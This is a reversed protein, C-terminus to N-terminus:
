TDKGYDVGILDLCEGVGLKEICARWHKPHTHKMRQFRNEEEKEMHVGFMCFMCGTKTYGLDYISSYPVKFQHLYSWIDEETWFALPTSMPRKSDFSNCGNILYQQQRLRSDTAMTGVVPRLGSKKEFRKVPDKKLRNCCLSSIKIPQNSLFKWKEAIKGNGKSDGFLRKNRLFESKTTRIEYLKCATEKSVLPYGYKEIVQKFFMKPRVTIINPTQKVLQVVEPYELGTNVFVGAVDPFEQRVLHLLVTSDKGGSFSIYINGDWAKHWSRIREMSMEIKEDLPKSLWQRYQEPEIIFKM